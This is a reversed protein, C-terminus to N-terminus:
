GRNVYFRVQCFASSFNSNTAVSFVKAFERAKGNM